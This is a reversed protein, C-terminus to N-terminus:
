DQHSPQNWFCPPPCFLVSNPWLKKFKRRQMHKCIPKFCAQALSYIVSGQNNCSVCPSSSSEQWFVESRGRWGWGLAEWEPVIFHTILFRFFIGYQEEKLLCQHAQTPLLAWPLKRSTVPPHNWWVCCLHYHSSFPPLVRPFSAPWHMAPKQKAGYEIRACRVTHIHTSYTWNM